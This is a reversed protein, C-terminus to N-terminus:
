IHLVMESYSSHSPGMIKPMQIRLGWNPANPTPSPFLYIVPSSSHPKLLWMSHVTVREHAGLHGQWWVWQCAEWRSPSLSRGRSSYSYFKLRPMLDMGKVVMLSFRLALLLIFNYSELLYYFIFSLHKQTQDHPKLSTLMCQNIISFNEVHRCM